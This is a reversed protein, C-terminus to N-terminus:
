VWTGHLRPCSVTGAALWHPTRFRSRGNRPEVLNCPQRKTELGEGKVLFSPSGAEPRTPTVALPQSTPELVQRGGDEPRGVM